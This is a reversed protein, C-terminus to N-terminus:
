NAPLLQHILDNLIAKEEGFKNLSAGSASYQASGSLSGNSFVKVNASSLFTSLDWGWHVTYRMLFPCDNTDDTELVRRTVFNRQKVLQEITPLFDSRKVRPNEVICMIKNTTGYQVPKIQKVPAM